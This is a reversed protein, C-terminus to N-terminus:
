YSVSYDHPLTGFDLNLFFLLVRLFGSLVVRALTLLSICCGRSAAETRSLGFNCAAKDASCDASDSCLFVARVSALAPCICRRVRFM